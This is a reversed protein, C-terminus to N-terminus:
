RSLSRSCISAAFDDGKELWYRDMICLASLAATYETLEPVSIRQNFGGLHPGTLIRIDEKGKETRGAAETSFGRSVLFDHFEAASMAEQEAVRLFEEMHRDVGMEEILRGSTHDLDLPCPAKDSIGTFGQYYSSFLEALVGTLWKRDFLERADVPRGKEDFGMRHKERNRCYSGALLVLSLVQAGIHEYLRAPTGSFAMFHEFDRIGSRSINPYCCSALWQDLRGGRRWEYLGGDNRRHRQVRNHFLPIPATHIIGLSALRGFLRATRGLIVRFARKGPMKGNTCDNPYAFYGRHVRFGIALRDQAIAQSRPIELRPDLIRLIVPADKWLPEPVAFRDKEALGLISIHQMWRIEAALESPDQGPRAFKFVLLRGPEEVIELVLNRGIWRARGLSSGLTKELKPVSVVQPTNDAPAPARVQLRLPLSGMAEAAARFAPGTRTCLIRVLGNRAQEGAKKDPARCILDALAEGAKKLLFFVQRQGAHEKGELVRILASATSTRVIEPQRAIIFQLNAVQMYTATFDCRRGCLYAEADLREKELNWTYM